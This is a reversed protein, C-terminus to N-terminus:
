EFYEVIKNLANLSIKVPSAVNEDRHYIAIGPNYPEFRNVSSITNVSQMNRKDLWGVIINTEFHKFTDKDVGSPETALSFGAGEYSNFKMPHYHIFAEADKVESDTLNFIIEHSTSSSKEKVQGGNMVVNGVEVISGDKQQYGEKYIKQCTKAVNLSFSALSSVENPSLNGNKLSKGVKNSVIHILDSNNDTHLYHKGETNFYDDMGDPDIRNIPNCKCYAYPSMGYYKECLPDVSSFRGLIPM